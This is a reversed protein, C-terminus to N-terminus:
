KSATCSTRSDVHFIYQTNQGDNYPEVTHVVWNGNAIYDQKRAVTLIQDITPDGLKWKHDVRCLLGGGQPFCAIVRDHIGFGTIVSDHDRVYINLHGAEGHEQHRAIAEYMTLMNRKSTVDTNLTSM